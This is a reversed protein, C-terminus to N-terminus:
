VKAVEETAQKDMDAGVSMAKQLMEFHRMIGILRVAADAAPVNSQELAGQHVETAPDPNVQSPQTSFVFYSSGLKSLAQSPNDVGGIEIQGVTQGNQEVL